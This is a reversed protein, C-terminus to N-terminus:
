FDFEFVINPNIDKLLGLFQNIEVPSVLVSDYKKYKVLIRDLSLAPESLLSNSKSVSRIEFIHIRVQFWMTKVMLFHSQIKYNTSRYLYFWLLNISITYGLAFCWCSESFLLIPFVFGSLFFILKFWKDVKSKFFSQNSKSEPTILPTNLM